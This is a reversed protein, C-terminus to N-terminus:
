RAAWPTAVFRIRPRTLAPESFNEVQAVGARAIDKWEGWRLAGTPCVTACAPEMGQDIRDACMTCKEMKKRGAHFQPADYPCFQTCFRCGVCRDQDILVIGDDRRWIAKVPCVKLCLANDCHNCAMSLVQVRLNPFTGKEWSRVLRYRVNWGTDVRNWQKCAAECARCDICRKPDFLWGYSM